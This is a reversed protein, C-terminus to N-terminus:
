SCGLLPFVCHHPEGTSLIVGAIFLEGGGWRKRGGGWGWGIVMEPVNKGGFSRESGGGGLGWARLSTM